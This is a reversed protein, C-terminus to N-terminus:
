DVASFGSDHNGVEVLLGHFEIEFAALELLEIAEFCSCSFRPLFSVCAVSCSRVVEVRLSVKEESPQIWYALPFGKQFVRFIRWLHYFPFLLPFGSKHPAM